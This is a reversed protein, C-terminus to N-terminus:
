SPMVLFAMVNPIIIASGCNVRCEARREEDVGSVHEEELKASWLALEIQTAAEVLLRRHEAKFNSIRELVSEIWRQIEITKLDPTLTPLLHNIRDIEENM